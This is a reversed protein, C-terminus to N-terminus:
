LDSATTRIGGVFAGVDCRLVNTFSFLNAGSSVLDSPHCVELRYTKLVTLGETREVKFSQEM